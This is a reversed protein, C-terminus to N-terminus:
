PLPHDKEDYTYCITGISYKRPNFYMEQNRDALDTPNSDHDVVYWGDNFLSTEGKLLPKRQLYYEETRDKRAYIIERTKPNEHHRRKIMARFRKEREDHSELPTGALMDDKM